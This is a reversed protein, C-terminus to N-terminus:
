MQKSIKVLVNKTEELLKKKDTMDEANTFVGTSCQDLIELITKQDKEDINKKQMVEVLGSRNMKSGTLGFHQTFFFWICTRLM